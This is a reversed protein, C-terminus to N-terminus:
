GAKIVSRVGRLWHRAAFSPSEAAEIRLAEKASYDPFVHADLRGNDYESKASTSHESEDSVLVGDVIHAM